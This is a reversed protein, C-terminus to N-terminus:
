LRAADPRAATALRRDPQPWREDECRGVCLHEKVREVACQAVELCGPLFSHYVSATSVLFCYLFVPTDSKDRSLLNAKPANFTGPEGEGVLALDEVANRPERGRM